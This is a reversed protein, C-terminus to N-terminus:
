RESSFRFRKIVNYAQYMGLEGAKSLDAIGEQVKGIYIRAIGRNYYAEAFRDNIAIAATYDLVASKFDNLSASVNGRNLYAYSFDPLLEIVRDLDDRVLRYDIDPLVLGGGFTVNASADNMRETELHRFRVFSRVLYLEWSLTDVSLASDIDAMAAEMDQLLYFDIARQMLLHVDTSDSELEKSLDNIRNFHRTVENGTLARENSVLLLPREGDLCDNLEELPKYYRGVRQQEEIDMYYTLVFMPVLEIYVTRDQVKGRYETAYQESPEEDAPIIRNYNRINRESRRAVDDEGPCDVADGGSSGNLYVNMRRQIIWAEDAEAARRNGVRRYASARLSHADEFNPYNALVATYDEIAASYDGTRDLLIARNFRALTNDPDVGLVWDFDEIAKNYDGLEMRLLGRNYHAAFNAPQVYLAMDYDDMAARLSDRNYRVIARNVYYNSRSPMLDIARDLDKEAAEYDNIESYVIARSQYVDPSFRDNDVARQAMELALATDNMNLAIQTRLRCADSNRPAFLLLSDVVGAAKNWDGSEVAVAGLNQWLNVNQPDYKIAMRLDEEALFLSDLHARCLGRLQYNRSVFPNKEIAIGFDTEAGSYDELYFKALGRFFYPEHLFPKADIVQNFYQISLVYDDYYLANRGIEMVRTTNLQAACLMVTFLCALAVIARRFIM